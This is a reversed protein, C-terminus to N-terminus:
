TVQEQGCLVPHQHPGQFRPAQLGRGSLMCKRETLSEIHGPTRGESGRIHTMCSRPCDVDSAWPEPVM